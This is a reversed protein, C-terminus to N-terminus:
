TPGEPHEPTENGAGSCRICCYANLYASVSGVSRRIGYEEELHRVIQRVSLGDHHSLFHVRGVLHLLDDRRLPRAPYNKGDVGNCREIM